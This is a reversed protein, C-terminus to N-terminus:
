MCADAELLARNSGNHILDDGDIHYKQLRGVCGFVRFGPLASELRLLKGGRFKKKITPIIIKSSGKIYEGKGKLIFKLWTRSGM